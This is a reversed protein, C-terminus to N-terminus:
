PTQKRWPCKILFGLALFLAWAAATFAFGYSLANQGCLAAIRLFFGSPLMRIMADTRPDMLWLDNTFLLKHFLLFLQEFGNTTWLLVLGTALVLLILGFARLTRLATRILPKRAILISLLLLCAGASLSAMRVARELEFLHLVDVMHAQEDENFVQQRIGFVEEETDIDPRSGRLYSSLVRNVRSQADPTLGADSYINLDSQIDDYVAPDLAIQEFGWFAGGLFILLLSTTLLIVPTRPM